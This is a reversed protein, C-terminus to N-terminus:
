WPVESLQQELEAGTCNRVVVRPLRFPNTRSTLPGALSTCAHEFGAARVLSVTTRNFDTGGGYPYAFSVVPRGLITELEQKGGAIEDQQRSRPLEALVPHSVTHAGVDVLDGDALQILEDATLPRPPDRPEGNQDEVLSSLARLAAERATEDLPRLRACLTRYVAHRPSPDDDDLVSWGEPGRAGDVAHESRDGLEFRVNEGPLSLELTAPLRGPGLLVREVEDWWFRKGGRLYASAVYVTASIGSRELLPKAVSLNDAYGDDFTVAVARRGRLARGARTTGVLDRLTVPEYEAAIVSLHERFRDPRVALSQADTEADAVRHYLLILPGSRERTRRVRAVRGLRGILERRM